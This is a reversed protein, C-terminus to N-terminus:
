PCNGDEIGATKEVGERRENRSIENKRFVGFREVKRVKEESRAAARRFQREIHRGYEM